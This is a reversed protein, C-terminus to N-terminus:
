GSTLDLGDAIRNGGESLWRGVSRKSEVLDNKKLNNWVTGSSIVGAKFLIRESAVPNAASVAGLEKMAALIFRDNPTLPERLAALFDGNSASHSVPSQDPKCNQETHSALGSVSNDGTPKSDIRANKVAQNSVADV